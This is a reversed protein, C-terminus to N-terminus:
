SEFKFGPGTLAGINHKDEDEDENKFNAVKRKKSTVKVSNEDSKNNAKTGSDTAGAKGQRKIQSIQFRLAGATAGEGYLEALKEYDIRPSFHEIVLSFLRAKATADWTIRNEAPM